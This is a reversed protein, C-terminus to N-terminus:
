LVQPIILVMLRLGVLMEVEQPKQRYVLIGHGNYTYTLPIGTGAKGPLPNFHTLAAPLVVAPPVNVKDAWPSVFKVGDNSICEARAHAEFGNSSFAQVSVSNSLDWMKRLKHPYFRNDDFYIYCEKIQSIDSSSVRVVIDRSASVTIIPKGITIQAKTAAVRKQFQDQRPSM